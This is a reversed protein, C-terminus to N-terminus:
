NMERELKAEFTLNRFTEYKATATNIKTDYITNDELKDIEIHLENSKKDYEKAISTWDKIGNEKGKKVISDVFRVYNNTVLKAKQDNTTDCSIFTFVTFVLGISFTSYKM